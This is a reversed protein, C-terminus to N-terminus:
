KPEIRQIVVGGIKDVGKRARTSRRTAEESVKRRKGVSKPGTAAESVAPKKSGRAQNDPELPKKTVGAQKDSEIAEATTDGKDRENAREIEDEEDTEDDSSELVRKKNRRLDEEVM